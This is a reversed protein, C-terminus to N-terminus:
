SAVTIHTGGQGSLMREAADIVARSPLYRLCDSLSQVHKDCGEGLCPVCGEDNEGQLLFVNGRAQTGRMLWPTAPGAGLTAPWPGWKVPSSPGFLAVTPIGLAAAMHTVATDTGVFVKARRLLWALAALDVKGAINVTGAPLHAMLGDVYDREEQSGGGAVVVTLGRQALARALEVWGQLTWAKYQFKPSVHMLAFPADFGSFAERARVPAGDDWAVRVHAIPAIDLPALLRLNGALTHENGEGAAVADDLARRKWASGAGADVFGIARRGAAWAIFTPRDGTQVSIALDYERWLRSALRVTGWGGLREPVAIVENVDPNGRLVGDTGAFVLMDVRADPWAAKISHAIPTSLLVDGIRRMCIVLIRM